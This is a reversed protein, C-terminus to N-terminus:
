LNSFLPPLLSPSSPRFLPSPVTRAPLPWTPRLLGPPTFGPSLSSRASTPRIPRVPLCIESTICPRILPMASAKFLRNM